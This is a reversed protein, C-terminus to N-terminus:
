VIGAKCNLTVKANISLDHPCYARNAHSEIMKVYYGDTNPDWYNDSLPVGEFCTWWTNCQHDPGGNGQCQQILSGSPDYVM